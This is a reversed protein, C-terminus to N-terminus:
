FWLRLGGAILAGGAATSVATTSNPLTMEVTAKSFRVCAGLGAHSSLKLGVDAGANFGIANNASVRQSAAAIFAPADYPYTDTFSVDTVVEQQVRFFSPGASLAVDIKGTPHLTYLGQLHTVFESRQLGAATGAITRPSKFFFPHPIAASVEADKNSRASSVTVGVSFRGALRVSAGGDVDIGRGVKYSTDIVANELYVVRTTTTDFAMSSFQVGGNLSIRLRDGGGAHQAVAQRACGLSLLLAAVFIHRSARM